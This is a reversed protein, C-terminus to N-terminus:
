RWHFLIKRGTVSGFTDDHNHWAGAITYRKSAFFSSDCKRCHDISPRSIQVGGITTSAALICRTREQRCLRALHAAHNAMREQRNLGQTLPECADGGDTDRDGVFYYIHRDFLRAQITAPSTANMYSNRGDLGLPYANFSGCTSDPRARDETLYLYSGPASAGYSMTVGHNRAHTEIDTGAAYRHAFQAGASHGVVAIHSLSPNNQILKIVIQDIVGYSSLRSRNSAKNGWRWGSGWYLYSEDLGHKTLPTGTEAGDELFVPVVITTTDSVGEADALAKVDNYYTQAPNGTGPIVIVARRVFQNAHLNDGLGHFNGGLFNDEPAFSRNRCVRLRDNGFLITNWCVEGVEPYDLDGAASPGPLLSM